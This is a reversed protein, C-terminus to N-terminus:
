KQYRKNIDICFSRTQDFFPRSYIQIDEQSLYNKRLMKKTVRITKNSVLIKVKLGM